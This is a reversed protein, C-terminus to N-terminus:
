LFEDIFSGAAASVQNFKNRIENPEGNYPIETLKVDTEAGTVTENYNGSDKLFLEFIENIDKNPVAGDPNGDMKEDVYDSFWKLFQKEFDDEVIDQYGDDIKFMDIIPSDKAENDTAARATLSADRLNKGTGFATAAMKIAAKTAGLAPFIFSLVDTVTGGLARGAAGAAGSKKRVTDLKQVNQAITIIDKLQGWTKVKGEKGGKITSGFGKLNGHKKKYEEKAKEEEEKAKVRAKQKSTQFGFISKATDGIWKGAKKLAGIVENLEEPGYKDGYDRLRTELLLKNWETKAEYLLERNDSM